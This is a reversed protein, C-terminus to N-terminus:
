SRLAETFALMDFVSWREVIQGDKWATTSLGVAEVWKGSPMIGMYEKRQLAKMRWRFSNREGAWMVDEIVSKTEFVDFMAEYYGRVNTKDFPEPAYGYLRVDDGYFSLYTDLDHANFADLWTTLKTNLDTMM